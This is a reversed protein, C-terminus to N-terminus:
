FWRDHQPNLLSTVAAAERRNKNELGLYGGPIMEVSNDKADMWAYQLCERSKRARDSRRAAANEVKIKKLSPDNFVSEADEISSFVSQEWGRARRRHEPIREKALRHLAREVAHYRKEGQVDEPKVAGVDHLGMLYVGSYAHDGVHGYRSIYEYLRGLGTSRGQKVVAEGKSGRAKRGMRDAQSEVAYVFTRGKAKDINEKSLFEELPVGQKYDNVYITGQQCCNNPLVAQPHKSVGAFRQTRKLTVPPPDPVWGQKVKGQQTKTLRSYQEWTPPVGSSPTWPTSSTAVRQKTLKAPQPQQAQQPQQPQQPQQQAQARTKPAAPFVTANKRTLTPIVPVNQLRASQRKPPM